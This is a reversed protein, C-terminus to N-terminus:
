WDADGTEDREDDAFNREDEEEALAKLVDDAWEAIKAEEIAARLVDEREAIKAAGEIAVRLVDALRTGYPLWIDQQRDDCPEGVGYVRIAVPVLKLLPLMWRDTIIGVIKPGGSPGNECSMEILGRLSGFSGKWDFSPNDGHYIVNNVLMWFQTGRKAIVGDFNRLLAM